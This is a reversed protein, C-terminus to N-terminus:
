DKKLIYVAGAVAGSTFIALLLYLLWAPIEADTGFKLVLGDCAIRVVLVVLAMLIKNFNM